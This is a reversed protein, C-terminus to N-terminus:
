VWRLQTLARAGSMIGAASAAPGGQALPAYPLLASSLFSLVLDRRGMDLLGAPVVICWDHCAPVSLHVNVNPPTEQGNRLIGYPSHAAPPNVSFTTSTCVAVVM